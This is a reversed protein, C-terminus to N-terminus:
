FSTKVKSYTIKLFSNNLDWAHRRTNQQFSSIISIIIKLVALVFAPLIAQAIMSLRQVGSIGMGFESTFLAM